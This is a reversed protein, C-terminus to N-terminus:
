LDHLNFFNNVLIRHVPCVDSFSTNGWRVFAIKGRVLMRQVFFISHNLVCITSLESHLHAHEFSFVAACSVGFYCEIEDPIQLNELLLDLDHRGFRLETWCESEDWADIDFREFKYYPFTLRSWNADYVLSNCTM